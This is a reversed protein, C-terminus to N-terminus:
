SEEGCFERKAMSVVHDMETFFEHPRHVDSVQDLGQCIHM